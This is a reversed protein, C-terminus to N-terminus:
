FIKETESESHYILKNIPKKTCKLYKMM